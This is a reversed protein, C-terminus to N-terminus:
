KSVTATAAPAAGTATARTGAPTTNTDGGVNRTVTVETHAQTTTNTPQSCSKQEGKAFKVHVNEVSLEFNKMERDALIAILAVTVMGIVKLWFAAQKM